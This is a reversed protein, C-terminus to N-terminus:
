LGGAPISIGSYCRWHWAYVRTPGGRVFNVVRQTQNQFFETRNGAIVYAPLCTSDTHVPIYPYIESSNVLDAASPFSSVAFDRQEGCDVIMDKDTDVFTIIHRGQGTYNFPRQIAAEADSMENLWSSAKWLYDIDSCIGIFDATTEAGEIVSNGDDDGFKYVSTGVYGIVM